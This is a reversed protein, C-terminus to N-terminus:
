RACHFGQSAAAITERQGDAEAISAMIDPIALNFVWKLIKAIPAKRIGKPLDSTSMAKSAGSNDAVKQIVREFAGSMASNTSSMLMRFSCDILPTAFPVWLIKNFTQVVFKLVVGIIPGVIPVESVGSGIANILNDSVTAMGTVFSLIHPQMEDGLFDLLKQRVMFVAKTMITPWLRGLKQPNTLSNPKSGGDCKTMNEFKKWTDKMEGAIVEASAAKVANHTEEKLMTFIELPSIEADAELLSPPDPVVLGVFINLVEEVKERVFKLANKVFPVVKTKIIDLATKVIDKGAKLVEMGPKNEMENLLDEIKILTSDIWSADEASSVAVLSSSNAQQSQRGEVVCGLLPLAFKPLNSSALKIAAELGDLAPEVFRTNVEAVGGAAAKLLNNLKYENPVKNLFSQFKKTLKGIDKGMKVLAAVKKPNVSADEAGVTGDSRQSLLQRTAEENDQVDSKDIMVHSQMMSVTGADDLVNKQLLASADAEELVTDVCTSATCAKGPDSAQTLTLACASLLFVLDRTLVM